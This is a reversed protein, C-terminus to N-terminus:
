KLYDLVILVVSCLYLMKQMKDLPKSFYKAPSKEAETSIVFFREDYHCRIALIRIALPKRRLRRRIAGPM